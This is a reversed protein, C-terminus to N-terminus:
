ICINCSSRERLPHGSRDPNSYWLWCSWISLVEPFQCSSNRLGKMLVSEVVEIMQDCYGVKWDYKPLELARQGGWFSLEPSRRWGPTM